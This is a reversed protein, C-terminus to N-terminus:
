RARRTHAGLVRVPRDSRSPAYLAVDARASFLASFKGDPEPAGAVVGISTTIRIPAGDQQRRSRIRGCSTVCGRRSSSRARPTTDPLLV